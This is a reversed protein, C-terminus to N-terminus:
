IHILSLDWNSGPIGSSRKQFDILVNESCIGSIKLHNYEKLKENISEGADCDVTGKRIGSSVIKFNENFKTADIVEGNQFTNPVSQASILQPVFLISLILIIKKM